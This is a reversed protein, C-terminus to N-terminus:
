VAGSEPRFRKRLGILFNRLIQDQCERYNKHDQKRFFASLEHPGIKKGALAMTALIDEEKFDLAIKLKRFIMNNNLRSEIVPAPGEKKGRNKHILGQLFFALQGDEMPKFEPHEDQKLWDSVQARTAQYDALAFISIMADDGWDFTFRLNRLVDNPTV